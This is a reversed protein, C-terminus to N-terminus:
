CEFGENQTHCECVSDCYPALCVRVDFLSMGNVEMTKITNIICRNHVLGFM